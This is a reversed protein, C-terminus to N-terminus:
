NLVKVEDCKDDCHVDNGSITLEKISFGGVDRLKEVDGAVQKAEQLSDM